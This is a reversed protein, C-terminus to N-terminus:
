HRKRKEEPVRTFMTEADAALYAVTAVAGVVQDLDEKTVQDMTDNATHHVDFYKTADQHLDLLPVGLARLPGIDAGGYASDQDSTIGLPELAKYIKEFATKESDATLSRTTHVRGSGLDIELALQHKDVEAAHDKAYALAGRLGNEENAFLVVRVTRKPREPLLSILRAAEMVAACGTGDDIAGHGLDWSDLHAGILVIEDPKEKGTVEGIVNASEADPLVKSALSFAVRVPKGSLLLRELLDADPVSLAAAPIKTVKPDKDYQMAGTHPLRDHDTGISRILTAIAGKKAAAIAAGARVPAAKGYGRGTKLRETKVPFFVIKGKVKAEDMKELAELSEALVVEAEIGKGPTPVSGGLATLALQHPFPSVVRGSEAGREWHPVMVKEARVNSFGKEKMARLGWAVAAKDGPSGALRPGVEDVLSRVTEYARSDSGALLQLKAVAPNASASASASASAPASAPASASVSASAPACVPAAAAKPCEPTQAPPPACASLTIAAALLATRLHM